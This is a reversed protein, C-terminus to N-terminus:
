KAAVIILFLFPKTVDVGPDLTIFGKVASIKSHKYYAPGNRWPVNGALYLTQPCPWAYGLISCWFPAESPYAGAKSAFILSPQFIGLGKWGLRINTHLAM